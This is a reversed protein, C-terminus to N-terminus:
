IQTRERRKKTLRGLTKDIKNVKEFFWSKTKNIKEITKQTEIKNIEKIKIIEKRRSVKPRKQEEKELENLHLTLNDM